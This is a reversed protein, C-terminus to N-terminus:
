IDDNRPASLAVFCDGGWTTVRSQKAESAVVTHGRGSRMSLLPRLGRRSAHAALVAGRRGDKSVCRKAISRLILSFEYRGGSDNRPARLAVFCDGGWTTVRSRKASGTM